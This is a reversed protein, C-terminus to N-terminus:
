AIVGASRYARLEADSVGLQEKLVVDTSSGLEPAARPSSRGSAAKLPSAPALTRGIRPQNIYAFLPNAESCAADEAVLQSVSQYPGWCVGNTTFLEAIERYGRSGVQKEVLNSIAERAMFRNGELDLNTDLQRALAHIDAQLSLAQCLARWQKLTLAVVMLRHGDSTVFDRGFAGYLYNDYRPREAGREAEAVFGLNAMTALAVDELPLHIHEGEGTRTRHREAALIGLAAMQGTILDWAPLVHNVVGGYEAPGTLMPLGMRPNITYDVASGGHRDGQISLQILDARRKKLQEYDLWGRAPMNTLLIGADQGPATILAQALERGEPRTVDIAVSKKGKNLGAWFLSVNDETVPWRRYDLGGSPPDIRIVEAGLQALAMGGSPAAVFASVEIVRLGKLLEGHM